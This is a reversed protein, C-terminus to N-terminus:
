NNQDVQFYQSVAFVSNLLLDWKNFHSRSNFLNQYQILFKDTFSDIVDTKLISAWVWLQLLFWSLRVVSSNSLFGRHVSDIYRGTIWNSYSRIGLTSPFCLMSYLCYSKVSILSPLGQGKLSLTRERLESSFGSQGTNEEKLWQEFSSFFIFATELGKMTYVDERVLPHLSLSLISIHFGMRRVCCLSSCAIDVHSAHNKSHVAGIYRCISDFTSKSM